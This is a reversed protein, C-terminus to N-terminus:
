YWSCNNSSQVDSSNKALFTCYYEGQVLDTMLDSATAKVDAQVLYWRSTMTGSPTYAFFFLRNVSKIIADKLHTTSPSTNQNTPLIKASPFDEVTDPTTNYERHMEGTSPYSTDPHFHFAHDVLSLPKENIKSYTQTKKGEGESVERQVAKDKFLM